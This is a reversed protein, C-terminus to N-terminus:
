LLPDDDACLVYVMMVCMTGISLGLGTKFAPPDYRFTVIHDRPHLPTALFGDVKLLRRPLGDVSV